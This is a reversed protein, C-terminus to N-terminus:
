KQFLGVFLGFHINFGDSSVDPVNSIAAGSPDSWEGGFNWGYGGGARLLIFQNLSYEINLTPQVYLSSRSISSYYNLGGENGGGGFRGPSFLTDFGTGGDTVQNYEIRNTGRGIMVGPFVMLGDPPLFIAYDLQAAVLGSSFRLTKNYSAGGITDVQSVEKSGGLGYIGYRMNRIGVGGLFGGGGNMLMGSGFQEMGLDTAIENMADFNVLSYMGLYGGGFGVYDLDRYDDTPIDDFNYDDFDDDDDEQAFLATGTLLTLLLLLFGFRGSRRIFEM